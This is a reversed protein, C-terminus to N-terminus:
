GFMLFLFGAAFFFGVFGTYAGLLILAGAAITAVATLVKVVLESFM